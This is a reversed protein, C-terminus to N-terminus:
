DDILLCNVRLLPSPKKVLYGGDNPDSTLSAMGDVFRNGNARGAREDWEWNGSSPSSELPINIEGISRKRAGEGGESALLHGPIGVPGTTQSGHIHHPQNAPAGTHLPSRSLNSSSNRQRNPGYSESLGLNLYSNTVGPTPTHQQLNLLANELETM